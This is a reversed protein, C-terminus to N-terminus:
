ALPLELGETNATAANPILIEEIDGVHLHQAVAASSQWMQPVQDAGQRHERISLTLQVERECKDCYYEYM